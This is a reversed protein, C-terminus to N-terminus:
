VADIPSDGGAGDDTEEAFVAGAFGGEDLAGEAEEAGVDAVGEDEIVIGPGEVGGGLAADAVDWL